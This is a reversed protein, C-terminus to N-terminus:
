PRDRALDDLRRDDMVELFAEGHELVEDRRVARALTQGVGRELRGVGPVERPPEHVHRLVHDDVDLVAAGHVAELDAGELLALLDDLREAVPHESAHRDLVHDIRVRAVDEDARALLDVLGRGLRDLLAPADLLHRDARHELALRRAARARLAVSAVQRVAAHDVQALRHAHDRACDIPSGPM